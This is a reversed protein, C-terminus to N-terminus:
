NVRKRVRPFDRNQIDMCVWQWFEYKKMDGRDFANNAWNAAEGAARSGFRAIMEDAAISVEQNDSKGSM